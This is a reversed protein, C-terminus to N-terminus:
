PLRAFTGTCRRGHAQCSDQRDRWMIYCVGIWLMHQGCERQLWLGLQCLCTRSASSRPRGTGASAPGWSTAAVMRANKAASGAGKM